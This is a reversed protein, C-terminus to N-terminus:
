RNEFRKASYRGFLRTHGWSTINRFLPIWSILRILWDFVVTILIYFVMFAVMEVIFAGAKGMGQWLGALIPHRFIIFPIFFAGIMGLLRAASIQVAQKPCLNICRLCGECDWGWKIGGSCFRITKAPCQKVCVGCRTCRSDTGFLKGLFHRGFWAYLYGFPISWLINPWFIRRHYTQRGMIKQALEPLRAAAQEIIQRNYKERRPPGVITVNHPYDLTDSVFVRYKRQQLCLRAQYLAWGQYGDRFRTSIKGNTSIVATDVDNGDPLHRIYKLMIHPVSTAYVPFFFIHLEFNGTNAPFGSEVPHFIVRYDYKQLEGALQEAALLSNGTGSFYHILVGRKGPSEMGM